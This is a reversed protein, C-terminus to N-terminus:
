CCGNNETKCVKPRRCDSLNELRPKTPRNRRFGTETNVTQNGVPDCIEAM